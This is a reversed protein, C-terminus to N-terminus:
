DTALDGYKDMIEQATATEGLPDEAVEGMKEPDNKLGDYNRQWFIGTIPNLKGDQILSERYVACIGDVYEILQQHEETGHGNKWSTAISKSIGMAAYAALNGVRMGELQCLGIYENFRAMMDAPDKRNVGIGLSAVKATFGIYRQNDEPKAASTRVANNFYALKKDSM